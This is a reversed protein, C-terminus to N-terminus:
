AIPKKVTQMVQENNKDIYIWVSDSDGIRAAAVGNSFAEIKSHDTVIVDGSANAICYKEDANKFIVTNESYLISHTGSWHTYSRTEIPEFQQKGNKDILTFYLNGNAGHITVLGYDDVFDISNIMHVPYKNYTVTNLNSSSADVIYIANENEEVTYYIYGNSSGKFEKKKMDFEKFTGNSYLLFYEPTEVGQEDTNLNSMDLPNIIKSYYTGYVFAVENKFKPTSELGSLYFMNGSNSNWFVYDNHYYGNWAVIAFIGDGAYYHEEEYPSGTGMDTMPQIWKGTYDMIGYLHEIAAVNDKRQYILALGDGYAVIEVGKDFTAVTEGNDNVICVPVFSYTEKDQERVITAGKGIFDFHVSKDTLYIIQGEGNVIGSYEVNNVEYSIKSVGDVFGHRETPIVSNEDLNSSDIIINAPKKDNMDHIYWGDNEYVMVFYVTQNSSGALKMTTTATANSSDVVKIDIIELEMFDGSTTSVGLTFLDSLDIDFGTVGGAIGGMLNLMSKFTNGTKADLCKVVTDMDGTNYATVFTEIREAILEENTPANKIEEVDKKCSAFFVLVMTIVLFISLFRKM